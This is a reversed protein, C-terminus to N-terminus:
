ESAMKDFAAKVSEMYAPVGGNQPTPPINQAQRGVKNTHKAPNEDRMDKRILAYPTIIDEIAENWDFANSKAKNLAPNQTGKTFTLVKRESEDYGLDINKALENRILDAIRKKDAGDPLPMKDLRSVIYDNIDRSTYKDNAVKLKAEWDQQQKEIEDQHSKVIKDLQERMDKSDLSYKEERFALAAKIADEDNDIDEIANRPIGTTRVLHNRLIGGQKGKLQSFIEDQIKPRIVDKRNNTIADILDQEQYEELSEDDVLEVDAGLLKLLQAAKQSTIKNPM